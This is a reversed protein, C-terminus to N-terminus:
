IISPYVFYVFHKRKTVLTNELLFLYCIRWTEVSNYFCKDHSLKSSSSFSLFSESDVWTGLANRTWWPMNRLSSQFMTCKKWKQFESHTVSDNQLQQVIFRFKETGTVLTCRMNLVLYYRTNWESSAVRDWCLDLLTYLRKTKISQM